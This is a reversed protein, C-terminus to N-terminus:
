IVLNLNDGFHLIIDKWNLKIQICYIIVYEDQKSQKSLKKPIIIIIKLQDLWQFLVLLVGFGVGRNHWAHMFWQIKVLFHIIWCWLNCFYNFSLHFSLHFASLLQFSPVHRFDTASYKSYSCYLILLLIM